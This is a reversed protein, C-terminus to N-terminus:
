VTWELGGQGDFEFVELVELSLAFSEIGLEIAEGVRM